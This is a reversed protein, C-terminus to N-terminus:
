CYAYYNGEYPYGQPPYPPASHPFHPFHPHHPFMGPGHPPFNYPGSPPQNFQNMIQPQPYNYQSAVNKNYNNSDYSGSPVNYEDKPINQHYINSNQADYKQDYMQENFDNQNYNPVNNQNYYNTQIQPNQIPKQTYIKAKDSDYNEDYIPNNSDKRNYYSMDKPIPQNQIKSGQVDLRQDISENINITSLSPYDKSQTSIRVSFKPYENKVENSM